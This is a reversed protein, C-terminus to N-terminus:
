EFYIERWYPKKPLIGQKLIAPAGSYITLIKSSDINIKKVLESKVYNSVTIIKVAGKLSTYLRVFYSLKSLLPFPSYSFYDKIELPIIDHVTVIAPVPCILPIGMNGVAHYLDVKNNILALPLAIQEFIYRNKTSLVISKINKGKIKFKPEKSYFVICKEKKSIQSVLNIIYKGVGVLDEEAYRGDFGIKM